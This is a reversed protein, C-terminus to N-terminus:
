CTAYEWGGDKATASWVEHSNDLQPDEFTYAVYATRIGGPQERQVRAPGRVRGEFRAGFATIRQPEGYSEYPRVGDPGGAEWWYTQCSRSQMRKVTRYDGTHYADNYSQVAALLRKEESTDAHIARPLM